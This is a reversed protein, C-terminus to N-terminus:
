RFPLWAPVRHTLFYQLYKNSVEEAVPDNAQRAREVQRELAPPWVLWSCNDNELYDDGPLHVIAANALHSQYDAVADADFRREFSFAWRDRNNDPKTHPAPLYVSADGLRYAYYRFAGKRPCLEIEIEFPDVGPRGLTRPRTLGEGFADGALHITTPPLILPSAGDLGDVWWADDSFGTRQSKDLDWRPDEGLLQGLRTEFGSGLYGWFIEAAILDDAGIARFLQRIIAAIRDDLDQQSNEAM